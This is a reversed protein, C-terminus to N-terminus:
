LLPFWVVLGTLFRFWLGLRAIRREWYFHFVQLMFGLGHICPQLIFFEGLVARFIRHWITESFTAMLPALLRHWFCRFKSPFRSNLEVEIKQLGGLCLQGSRTEQCTKKPTKQPTKQPRKQATKQCWEHHCKRPGNKMTEPRGKKVSSPEMIRYLELALHEDTARKQFVQAMPSM